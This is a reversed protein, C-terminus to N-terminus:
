RWSFCITVKVKDQSSSARPVVSLTHIGDEKPQVFGQWRISVASLLPAAANGSAASFDLGFSASSRVASTFAFASTDRDYFTAFLGGVAAVSPVVKYNGPKTANFQWGSYVNTAADRKIVYTYPSLLRVPCGSCSPTGALCLSSARKATILPHFVLAPSPQAGSPVFGNLFNNPPTLPAPLAYMVAVVNDMNSSESYSNPTRLNGFSDRVTVSATIPIGATMSSASVSATSTTACAAAPQIYLTYSVPNPVSMLRPSAATAASILADFTVGNISASLASCTVLSPRCCSSPELV